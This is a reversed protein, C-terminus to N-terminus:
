EQFGTRKTLLNSSERLLALPLLALDEPRNSATHDKKKQSSPAPGCGARPVLVWPEGAFTQNCLTFWKNWFVACRIHSTEQPNQGVVIKVGMATCNGRCYGWTEGARRIRGVGCHRCIRQLLQPKKVETSNCQSQASLELNTPSLRCVSACAPFPCVSM